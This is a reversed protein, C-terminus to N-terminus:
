VSLMQAWAGPKRVWSQVVWAVGMDAPPPKMSEEPKLIPSVAIERGGDLKEGMQDPCIVLQRGCIAM